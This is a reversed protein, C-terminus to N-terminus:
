EDIEEEDDDEDDEVLAVGKYYVVGHTRVKTVREDLYQALKGVFDREVLISIKNKKAYRRYSDYIDRSRVRKKLDIEENDDECVIISKNFWTKTADLSTIIDEITKDSHGNRIEWEEAELNESCIEHGRIFDFLYMSSKAINDISIKLYEHFKTIIEESTFIGQDILDVLYNLQKISLLKQKSSKNQYEEQEESELKKIEKNTVNLKKNLMEIEAKYNNIDKDLAKFRSTNDFIEEPVYDEDSNEDESDDNKKSKKSKPKEKGEVKKYITHSLKLNPDNSIEAKLEEKLEITTKLEDTKNEITTEITDKASRANNLGITIKELKTRNERDGVEIKQGGYVIKSADVLAMHDKSLIKRKCDYCEECIISKDSYFDSTYKLQYCNYCKRGFKKISCSKCMTFGYEVEEPSLMTGCMVLKRCKKVIQGGIRLPEKCIIIKNDTENLFSDDNIDFDLHFM